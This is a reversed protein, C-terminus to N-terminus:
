LYTTRVNRAMLAQAVLCSTDLTSVFHFFVSESMGRLTINYLDNRHLEMLKRTPEFAIQASAGGMDLFGFTAPSSDADKDRLARGDADKSFGKLLYNVALWGYIGEMEGSIAAVHRECEGVVFPSHAMLYHCTEKLLDVRQADPLLRVGATAFVYIPTDSHAHVPVVGSAFDLLRQLYTAGVDQPRAGFTSIGPEVKLQWAGDSSVSTSGVVEADVAKRITPLWSSSTSIASGGYSYAYVLARSGSSGADVVVAYRWTNPMVDDEHRDDNERRSTPADHYLSDHSANAVDDDDGEIMALEVAYVLLLLLALTAVVAM